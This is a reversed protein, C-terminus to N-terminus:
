FYCDPRVGAVDILGSQPHPSQNCGQHDHEMRWDNRCRDFSPHQLIPTQYRAKVFYDLDAKFNCLRLHGRGAWSDIINVIREFGETHGGQFRADFGCSIFLYCHVLEHLFASLLLRHDYRPDRLIHSSLVILTEFGPRDVCCRLATSGITEIKYREHSSWEWKVRGALVGGFFISDAATLVSFLANDDVESDDLPDDRQILKRLIRENREHKQTRPRRHFHSEVRRAAQEDTFTNGYQPEYPTDSMISNGSPTREMTISQPLETPASLSRTPGSLNTMPLPMSPWQKQRPPSSRSPRQESQTRWSRSDPRAHHRRKSTNPKNSELCTEVLFAAM